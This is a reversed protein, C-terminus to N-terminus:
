SVIQKEYQLAPREATIHYWTCTTCVLRYNLLNIRDTNYTIVNIELVAFSLSVIGLILTNLTVARSEYTILSSHM